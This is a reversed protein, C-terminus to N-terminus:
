EPTREAESAPEARVYRVVRPREDVGPPAWARKAQEIADCQRQHAGLLSGLRNEVSWLEEAGPECCTWGASRLAAIAQSVYVWPTWEGDEVSGVLGDRVEWTGWTTAQDRTLYVRSDSPDGDIEELWVPMGGPATALAEAMARRGEETSALLRCMETVPVYAHETFGEASEHDVCLEGKRVNVNVRGDDIDATGDGWVDLKWEAM